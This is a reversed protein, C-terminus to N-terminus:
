HNIENLFKGTADFILDKKSVEAEYNVTGDAKSIKAAETIRKGKYNEKIYVLAIAPLDAVDISMESEEMVGNVEFTASMNKGKNKFGAEYKGDEKGWKPAVGPYQKAFATRVVAPVDSEKLKQACSPMTIFLALVQILLIKKM